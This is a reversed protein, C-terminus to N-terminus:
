IPILWGVNLRETNTKHSTAIDNPSSDFLKSSQNLM